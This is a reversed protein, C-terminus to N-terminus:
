SLFEKAGQDFLQQATHKAIQEIEKIAGKNEAKLCQKGDRSYVCARLSLEKGDTVAHGGIPAHCSGGLVENLAREATICLEANTDNIPTLIKKVEEDNERTQIGIIGQGVAPM